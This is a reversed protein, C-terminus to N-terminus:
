LYKALSLRQLRGTLTYAMELQTSLLNVRTAAENADVNEHDQILKQFMTKQADLREDASKIREEVVGIEGRLASLEGIADGAVSAAKDMVTAFVAKNQNELGLDSVMTFAMALKRIASRNASVSTRITESFSIRGTLIQDSASSWNNKWETQTFLDAFANDLFNEMQAQTINAVAPDSQTFGFEALFAADVSQKSAPPPNDFYNDLPADDSNIGAFVSVGNVDANINTIFSKFGEHASPIVVNAPIQNGRAAVALNLLSQADKTITALSNQTFDIRTKVVVNTKKITEAMMLRARADLVMGTTEGLQYGVDDWRGSSLETQAKVLNNQIKGISLPAVNSPVYIPTLTSRM